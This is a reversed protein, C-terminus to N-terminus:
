PSQVIRDIDLIPTSPHPDVAEEALLMDESLELFEHEPPHNLELDLDDPDSVDLADVLATRRIARTEMRTPPATASAPSGARSPGTQLGQAVTREDNDPHYELTSVDSNDTDTALSAILEVLESSEMAIYEHDLDPIGRLPNGTAYPYKAELSHHPSHLGFL